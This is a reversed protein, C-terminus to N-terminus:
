RGEKKRRRAKSAVAKNRQRELTHVYYLHRRASFSEGKRELARKMRETREKQSCAKSCYLGGKHRVFLRRCAKLACRHIRAGHKTILDAARMLFAAEWHEASYGSKIIESGKPRNLHRRLNTVHFSWPRGDALNTIGQRLQLAMRMLADRDIPEPRAGSGAPAMPEIFAYIEADLNALQSRTLKSLRESEATETLRLLWDLAVAARGIRQDAAQLATLWREAEAELKQRVSIEGM